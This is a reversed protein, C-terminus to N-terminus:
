QHVALPLALLEVESPNQTVGVHTAVATLPFPVKQCAAVAKLMTEPTLNVALTCHPTWRGPGYFPSSRGGHALALAYVDRHLTWLPDTMVVSLYLIGSEVFLGLGPLTLDFATHAELREQLGAVFPDADLDLAHALTVHPRVSGDTFTEVGADKLGQWISRVRAEAAEDFWLSVSYSM